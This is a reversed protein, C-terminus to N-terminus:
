DVNAQNCPDKELVLAPSSISQLLEDPRGHPVQSFQFDERAEPLGNSASACIRRKSPEKRHNRNRALAKRSSDPETTLHYPVFISISSRLRPSSDRGAVSNDQRCITSLTGPNTYANLAVPSGSNILRWVRSYKPLVLSSNFSQDRSPMTCGSSRGQTTSARVSARPAPVVKLDLVTTFASIANVAPELALGPELQTVTLAHSLLSSDDSCVLRECYRKAKTLAEQLRQGTKAASMSNNFQARLVAPTTLIAYDHGNNM